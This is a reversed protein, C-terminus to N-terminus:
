VKKLLRARSEVGWGFGFKYLVIVALLYSTLIACESLIPARLLLITGTTFGIVALVTGIAAVSVSRRVGRLAFAVAASTLVLSAIMSVVHLAVLGVYM